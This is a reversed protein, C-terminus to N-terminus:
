RIAKNATGHGNMAGGCDRGTYSWSVSGDAFSLSGDYSGPCSPTTSHLSIKDVHNDILTGTGEGQGGNPSEFRVKLDSGNQEIFIAIKQDGEGGTEYKVTNSGQYNGSVGTAKACVINLINEFLSGPKFDVPKDPPLVSLYVPNGDRSYNIIASALMKRETCAIRVNELSAQYTWAPLGNAVPDPLLEAVPRDEFNKLVVPVEIKYLADANSGIEGYFITGNGNPTNGVYSLQMKDFSKTSSLLARLNEDCVIRQSVAIIAGSNFSQNLAISDPKGFKFHYLTEGASNYVAKEVTAFNPRKCDVVNDDDEYAGQVSPKETSNTRLASRGKYAVRDGFIEISHVNLFYANRAADTAYFIWDGPRVKLLGIDTDLPSASLRTLRRIGEVMTQPGLVLALILAAFVTFAATTAGWTLTRSRRPKIARIDRVLGAMEHRFSAVSVSAVQHDLLSQIETPLMERDPIPAGNILVPIVAIDRELARAIELRVWDDSKQLRLRGQEDKSSLWDPGILVLLVRCESLRKEIVDPYKTGAQMEVDIYVNKRGFEKELYQGIGIANAGSDQRRYSIFIKLPM